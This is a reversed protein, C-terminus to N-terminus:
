GRGALRDNVAESGYQKQLERIQQPSSQKIVKATIKEPLASVQLGAREPHAEAYETRAVVKLEKRSLTKLTVADKLNQIEIRLQQVPLRSLQAIRDKRGGDTWSTLLGPLENILTQRENFEDRLIQDKARLALSGVMHPLSEELLEFTVYRDNGIFEKLLQKNAEVPSVEPHRQFFLFFDREQEAEKQALFIEHNVDELTQM